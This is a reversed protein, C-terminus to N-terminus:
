DGPAALLPPPLSPLSAPLPPRGAPPAPGTPRGWTFLPAGCLGRSAGLGPGNPTAGRWGGRGKVSRRGCRTRPFRRERPAWGPAPGLFAGPAAIVRRQQTKRRRVSTLPLLGLFALPPWSRPMLDKGHSYGAGEPIPTCPHVLSLHRRKGWVEFVWSRGARRGPVLLSEGVATASCSLGSASSDFGVPFTSRTYNIASSAMM